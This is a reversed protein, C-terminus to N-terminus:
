DLCSQSGGCHVETVFAVAQPWLSAREPHCPKGVSGNGTDSSGSSAHSLIHPAASSKPHHRRGISYDPVEAKSSMREKPRSASPQRWSSDTATSYIRICLILPPTCTPCCPYGSPFPFPLWWGRKKRYKM